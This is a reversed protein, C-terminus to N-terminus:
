TARRLRRLREAMARWPTLLLALLGLVPGALAAAVLAVLSAVGALLGGLGTLARVTGEHLRRV